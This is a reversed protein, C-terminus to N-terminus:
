FQTNLKQLADILEKIKNRQKKIVMPRLYFWNIAVWALTLAYATFGWVISMKSAYEYMFLCIGLSLLIFYSNLMTTQLFRQKDKWLLLEQLYQKTDKEIGKHTLLQISSNYAILFSIIAIIMLMVGISTSIIQPKFYFYIGGIFLLTLIMTLNLFLIKYLNKRKYKKVGDLISDIAPTEVKQRNWIENFNISDKM